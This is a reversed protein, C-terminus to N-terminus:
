KRKQRKPRIRGESSDDRDPQRHRFPQVSYPDGYAAEGRTFGGGMNRNRGSQTVHQRVNPKSGREPVAWFGGQEIGRQLGPQRYEQEVGHQRERNVGRAFGGTAGWPMGRHAGRVPGAPSNHMDYGWTTPTRSLYETLIESERAEVLNAQARKEHSEVHKKKADLLTCLTTSVELPKKANVLIGDYLEMFVQSGLLSHVNFTATGTSNEGKSRYIMEEPFIAKLINDPVEDPINKVFIYDDEPVKTHGPEHKLAPPYVSKQRVGFNVKFEIGPHVTERDSTSHTESVEQAEEKSIRKIDFRMRGQKSFDARQISHVCTVLSSDSVKIELMGLTAALHPKMFAKENPPVWHIDPDLTEDCFNKPPKTTIANSMRFELSLSSSILTQFVNKLNTFDEFPIPCVRVQWYLESEPSVSPGLPLRGKEDTTTGGVSNATNQKQSM